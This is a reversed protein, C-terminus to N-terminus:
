SMAVHRPTSLLGVDVARNRSAMTVRERSHPWYRQLATRVRRAYHACSTPRLRAQPRAGCDRAGRAAPRDKSRGYLAEHGLDASNTLLSRSSVQWQLPPPCVKEKAAIEEAKALEIAREERERKPEEREIAENLLTLGLKLDTIYKQHFM